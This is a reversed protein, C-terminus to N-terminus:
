IDNHTIKSLRFTNRYFVTADYLVGTLYNDAFQKPEPKIETFIEKQIGLSIAGTVGTLMQTTVTGWAFDTPTVVETPALRAYGTVSSVNSAFTGATLQASRLKNRNETSLDIYTSAGPTGTGSLALVTNAQAAAVNAGISIEGAAAAAGSAVYTFTVGMITFTDAATPITPMTLTVTRKLNNSKYIRFGDSSMGVFGNALSSDAANFGNSRQSAALYSVVGPTVVAFRTGVANSEDLRAGASLLTDDVTSASLSGGTVTNGSYANTVGANIAYQDIQNGLEYASQQAQKAVWEVTTQANQVHDVSFTSASRQALSMTGAVSTVADITLDTGPTYTQARQTPTYPWNITNGDKETPHMVDAVARAVLQNNLFDQTFPKWSQGIIGTLTNAM